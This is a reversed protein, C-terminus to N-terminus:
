IGVPPKPPPIHTGKLTDVERTQHVRTTPEPPGPHDPRAPAPARTQHVRTEKGDPTNWMSKDLLYYRSAFGARREVRIMRLGELEAISRKVQAVSMGGEEGILERPPRSMREKDAHNVLVIYTMKVWISVPVSRIVEDDVIFFGRRRKDIVETGESDM